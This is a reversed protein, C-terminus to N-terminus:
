NRFWGDLAPIALITGVPMLWWWNAMDNLALLWLLLGVFALAAAADDHKNFM